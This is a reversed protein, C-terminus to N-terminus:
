REVPGGIACSNVVFPLFPADDEVPLGWQPSYHVAVLYLGDAPFTPAALRRDGGALLEGIWSPPKKGQGIHVLSGVLNRVMHHLFASATFDFILLDGRREVDARQMLKVPSVAQCEAARFASFDNEGLLLGAATQMASLDLPHHYWGVRGHWAGPRHARNLLVYRYHRALACARAHFGPEVAHAWRVAVSAPLFTNSGRVWAYMSRDLTTDFHVVQGVAHVGADTRGACVVKLPVGAFQRLAEQLM